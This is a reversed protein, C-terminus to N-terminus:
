LLRGSSINIGPSYIIKVEEGSLSDDKLIQSDEMGSAILRNKLWIIGQKKHSILKKYTKGSVLVRVSHEQVPLHPKQHKIKQLIKEVLLYVECLERLAPHFLGAVVSGEAILRQSPQLGVRIVNIGAEEFLIIMKTLTSFITEEDWPHYKGTRFMEELRTNSLVLTPHLRVFEPRLSIATKASALSKQPTDGPLGLMLHIGLKFGFKSVLQASRIASNVDYGRGSLHLVEDCFSQIGLEITEGKYKKLLELTAPTVFDPRTSIRVAVIRGDSLFPEIAKLYREQLALPLASFSGGYFGVEVEPYKKRSIKQLSNSVFESVQEPSRIEDLDTLLSQNCYVCGPEPCGARPLFVPIIARKKMIDM